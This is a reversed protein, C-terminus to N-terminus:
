EAERRHNPQQTSKSCTDWPLTNPWLYVGGLLDSWFVVVLFNSNCCDCLHLIYPWVVDTKETFLDYKISEPAMWRIPVKEDNNTETVDKRYYNSAYM